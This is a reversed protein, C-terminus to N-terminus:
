YMQYGLARETAFIREFYATVLVDAQTMRKAAHRPLLVDSELCTHKRWRKGRQRATSGGSRLFLLGKALNTGDAPDNGGATYM